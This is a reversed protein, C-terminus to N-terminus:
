YLNWTSDNIGVASDEDKPDYKGPMNDIPVFCSAGLPIGM